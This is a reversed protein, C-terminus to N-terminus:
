LPANKKSESSMGILTLNEFIFGDDSSAGTTQDNLDLDKRSFLISQKSIGSTFVYCTIYGCTFSSKELRIRQM